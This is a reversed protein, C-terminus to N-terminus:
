LKSFNLVIKERIIKEDSKLIDLVQMAFYLTETKSKSLFVAENEVFDNIWIEEFYKYNWRNLMYLRMYLAEKIRKIITTDKALISSMWWNLLKQANHNLIFDPIKETNVWKWITYTTWKDVLCADTVIFNRNSENLQDISIITLWIENTKPIFSNNNFYKSINETRYKLADYTIWKIDSVFVLIDLDNPKENENYLFSWYISFGEIAFKECLFQCLINQLDNKIFQVNLVNIRNYFLEKLSTNMFYWNEKIPSNCIWHIWWNPTCDFTIDFIRQKIDDLFFPKICNNPNYKDLLLDTAISDINWFNMIHFNFFFLIISKIGFKTKFEVKKRFIM